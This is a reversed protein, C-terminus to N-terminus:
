NGATTPYRETVVLLYAYTQTQYRLCYLGLQEMGRPVRGVAIAIFWSIVAIVLLVQSLVWALVFAPIALVIRFATILWRQPDAGELTLDIPYSREGGHFPPYPNALLYVYSYVYVTYRLYRVLWRHLRQPSRGKILTVVWNAIGVIVAVLTYLGLWIFHPYALLWRVLVTLRSRRLDDKDVLRLPHPRPPEVPPPQPAQEEDPTVVDTM